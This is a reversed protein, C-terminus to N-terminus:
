ILHLLHGEENDNYSHSPESAPQSNESPSKALESNNDNYSHFPESAPQSTGPPSKVLESDNDSHSAPESCQKVSVFICM